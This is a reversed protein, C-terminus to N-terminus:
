AAHSQEARSLAANAQRHPLAVVRGGRSNLFLPEPLQDPEFTGAAVEDIVTQLEPSWVFWESHSNSAVFQRHFRAELIHNGPMSAVIELPFPSKAMLDALRGPQDETCGIKVPGSMGIPRIFYVCKPANRDIM